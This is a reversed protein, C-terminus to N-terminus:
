HNTCGCSCRLKRSIRVLLRGVQRQWLGARIAQVGSRLWKVTMYRHRGSLFIGGVCRKVKM